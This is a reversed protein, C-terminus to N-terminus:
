KSPNIRRRQFIRKQSATVLRVLVPLVCFCNHLLCISVIVWNLITSRDCMPSSPVKPSYLNGDVGAIIYFFVSLLPLADVACMFLVPNSQTALMSFPQAHKSEHAQDVSYVDQGMTKCWGETCAYRMLPKVAQSIDDDTPRTTSMSVGKTDQLVRLMADRVHKYSRVSQQVRKDMAYLMQESPSQTSRNTDARALSINTTTTAATPERQHTVGYLASVVVTTSFLYRLFQYTVLCVGFTGFTNVATCERKFNVYFIVALIFLVGWMTTMIGNIISWKTLIYRWQKPSCNSGFVNNRGEEKTRQNLLAGSEIADTDYYDNDDDDDDDYNSSYDAEYEASGGIHQTKNECNHDDSGEAAAAYVRQMLKGQHKTCNHTNTVSSSSSLSADRSYNSAVAVRQSIM